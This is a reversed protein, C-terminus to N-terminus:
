IIGFQHLIDRKLKGLQYKDIDEKDPIDHWIMQSIDVGKLKLFEPYNSSYIQVRRLMERIDEFFIKGYVEELGFFRTLSMAREGESKKTNPLSIVHCKDRRVNSFCDGITEILIDFHLNDDFDDRHPMAINLLEDVRDNKLLRNCRSCAPVLNHLTTALFPFKDKPFFHDLDSRVSQGKIRTAYVPDANCYPCYRLGSYLLLILNNEKLWEVARRYNFLPALRSCLDNYSRTELNPFILQVKIVLEFIQKVTLARLDYSDHYELLTQLLKHKAGKKTTAYLKSLGDNIRKYTQPRDCFKRVLTEPLSLLRKM